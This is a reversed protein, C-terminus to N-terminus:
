WRSVTRTRRRSSASCDRRGASRRNSPSRIPQTTAGRITRRFSSCRCSRSRTSASSAPYPLKPIIDDFHGPGHDRVDNFTGVHMEYIVLENWPPMTFADGSWDFNPDHIIANGSSNTVESAYPNKHWMVQAGNHIVFQYEDGIKAGPVEVSWYGNGENAFPNAAANWQNFTGAALVSSAFPAWVRFAVGGDYLITGIGTRASPAPPPPDAPVPM